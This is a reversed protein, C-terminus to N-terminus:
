HINQLLIMLEAPDKIDRQKTDNESTNGDVGNFGGLNSYDEKSYKIGADLRKQWSDLAASYNPREVCVVFYALRTEITVNSTDHAFTKFNFNYEKVKAWDVNAWGSNNMYQNIVATTTGSSGENWKRKDESYMDDLVLAQTEANNLKDWEPYGKIVSPPTWQILGWGHSWGSSIAKKFDMTGGGEICMPVFASEGYISGMTAFISKEDWGLDKLQKYYSQEPTLPQTGSSTGDSYVINPRIVGCYPAQEYKLDDAIKDKTVPEHNGGWNEQFLYTGDYIIAVHGVPRSNAAGWMIIDGTKMQSQPCGAIRKWGNPLTAHHWYDGPGIFGLFNRNWFKMGYANFFDYCQVGYYGDWDIYQGLVSNLWDQVAKSTVAM